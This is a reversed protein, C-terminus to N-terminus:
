GIVKVVRGSEDLADGCDYGAMLWHSQIIIETTSTM